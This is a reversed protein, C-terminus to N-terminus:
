KVKAEFSDVFARAGALAEDFAEPDEPECSASNIATLLVDLWNAAGEAALLADEMEPVRALRRANADLVRDKGWASNVVAMAVPNRGEPGIGCYTNEGETDVSWETECRDTWSGKTGAKRDERIQEFLDM